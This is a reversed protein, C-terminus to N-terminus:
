RRIRGLILRLLKADHQGLGPLLDREIQAVGQEASLVPPPCLLEVVRARARPNHFIVALALDFSPRKDDANVLQNQVTSAKQGIKDALFRAGLDLGGERIARNAEQLLDLFRCWDLQEPQCASESPTSDNPM